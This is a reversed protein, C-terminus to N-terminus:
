PFAPDKVWQALDRIWGADERISTLNTEVTGCCSNGTYANKLQFTISICDKTLKLHVVYYNSM